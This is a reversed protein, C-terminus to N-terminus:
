VREMVTKVSKGSTKSKKTTKTMYHSFDPDLVEHTEQTLAIIANTRNGIM